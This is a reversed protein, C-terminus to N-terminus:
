MKDIYEGAGSIRSKVVRPMFVSIILVQFPYALILKFTKLVEDISYEGPFLLGTALDNLGQHMQVPYSVTRDM